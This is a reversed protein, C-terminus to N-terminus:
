IISVPEFRIKKDRELSFEELLCLIYPCVQILCIQILTSMGQKFFFLLVSFACIWNGQPTDTKRTERAAMHDLHSSQRQRVRSYQVKSYKATCQLISYQVKSYVTSYQLRVNVACYQASYHYTTQQVSYQVACQFPRVGSNLTFSYQSYATVSEVNRYQVGCLPSNVQWNLM